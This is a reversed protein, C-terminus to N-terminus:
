RRADALFWRPFFPAPGQLKARRGHADVMSVIDVSAFGEERVLPGIDTTTFIFPEGRKGAFDAVGDRGPAPGVYDFLVRSANLAAIKRFTSQVTAETLYAIVGEWVFASPLEPQFGAEVLRTAFDDREFDCPVLTSPERPYDAVQALRERKYAQTEPHDVEFFRLGARALRAGRTDLGAGLLVLQPGTYARVADDLWATRVAIGAEMEPAVRDGAALLAPGEEGVLHRAWGDNCLAEDRESARARYAAAVRATLSAAEM